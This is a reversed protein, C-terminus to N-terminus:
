FGNEGVLGHEGKKNRQDKRGIAEREERRHTSEISLSRHLMRQGFTRHSKRGEMFRGRSPFEEGVLDSDPWLIIYDCFLSSLNFTFSLVHDNHIKLLKITIYIVYM